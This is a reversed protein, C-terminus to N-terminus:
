LPGYTLSPAPEGARARPDFCEFELANNLFMHVRAREGFARCQADAKRHADGETVGVVHRGLPAYGSTLVTISVAISLASKLM